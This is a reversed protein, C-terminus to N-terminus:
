GYLRRNIEAQVAAYNAGLRNARDQGDGHEGRMVEDALRSINTAPGANGYLRRNVEAMVANYQAGLSSVRVDGNGHAGALVEDALQSVSKSGSSPGNGIGLQRNVEIQVADYNAGLAAKRQEGNGYVGALVQRALEAISTQLGTSPPNVPPVPKSGAQGTRKGEAEAIIQGLHTMIYPGPCATAVFDQHVAVGGVTGRRVPGLGYRKFVDAILSTLAAWAEASIAYTGTRIGEPSNSVEVTINRHDSESGAPYGAAGTTWARYEEDVNPMIIGGNTIWYQASVERNPNTAEGHADVGAQGHITFGSIPATRNSYRHGAPIDHAMSALPSFTM